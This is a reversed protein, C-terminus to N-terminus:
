GIAARLCRIAEYWQGCTRDTDHKLLRTLGGFDRDDLANKMERLHGSFDAMLENFSRGGVRICSLDIRLLQATKLVTEQADQWTSFCGSLKEMAPAPQNRDLLEVSEGRLRDAQRLQIEVEDLVGTAMQKPDATEIFITHGAIPHRKIQKLGSRAPEQGDILVHVVLRNDRRLHALVQGVTKLGLHEVALPRHDVTVSM